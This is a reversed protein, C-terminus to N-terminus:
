EEEEEVYEINEGDCAGCCEVEAGHGKMSPEVIETINEDKDFWVTVSVAGIGYFENTNGCDMCKWGMM